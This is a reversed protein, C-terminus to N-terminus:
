FENEFIKEHALDHKPLRFLESLRKDKDRATSNSAFRICYKSLSNRTFRQTKLFNM